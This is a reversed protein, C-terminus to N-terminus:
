NIRKRFESSNYNTTIIRLCVKHKSRLCGNNLTFPADSCTNLPEKSSKKRKTRNSKNKAGKAPLPQQCRLKLSASSSNKSSSKHEKKKKGTSRTRESKKDVDCSPPLTQKRAVFLIAIVLITSLFASAVAICIVIYFNGENNERELDFYSKVSSNFIFIVVVELSKPPDGSDRIVVPFECISGEGSVAFTRSATVMGSTSNLRFYTNDVAQFLLRSNPGPEDDDEAMIKTVKDGHQFSNTVILTFNLHAAPFILRPANDNEDAIRVAVHASSCDDEGSTPCAFVDFVYFDILERDLSVLTTLSGSSPDVRFIDSRHIFYHFSNYPTEDADHAQVQLDDDDDDDDDDEYHEDDDDDDYDDDDYVCSHSANDPPRSCQNFRLCLSTPHHHDSHFIPHVSQVLLPSTFHFKPFISQSIFSPFVTVVDVITLFFFIIINIFMM